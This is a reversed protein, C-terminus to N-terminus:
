KAAGVRFLSSPQVVESQGQQAQLERGQEVEVLWPNERELKDRDIEMDSKQRMYERCKEKTCELTNFVEKQDTFFADVNRSTEDSSAMGTQVSSGLETKMWHAVKYREFYNTVAQKRVEYAQRFLMVGLIPITINWWRRAYKDVANMREKVADIRDDSVLFVNYDAHSINTKVRLASLGNLSVELSQNINESIQNVIRRASQRADVIDEDLRQIDDKLGAFRGRIGDKRQEERRQANEEAAKREAELRAAEEAAKREAELRAAEEAAKREAELRAEEAAKRAAEEAAKRAVEEAAKREAELRAEEAAKKAAEEAAKREAAAKAEEAAKREAGAKAKEEAVRKAEEDEINAPEGSEIHAVPSSRGSTSLPLPFTPTGSSAQNSQTLEVTEEFSGVPTESEEGKKNRTGKRRRGKGAVPTAARSRGKKESRPTVNGESSATDDVSFESDSAEIADLGHYKAYLGGLATVFEDENQGYKSQEDSGVLTLAADINLLLWDNLKKNTKKSNVISLRWMDLTDGDIKKEASRQYVDLALLVGIRYNDAPSLKESLIGKFFDFLELSFVRSTVKSKLSAFLSTVAKVPAPGKSSQEDVIDSYGLTSTVVKSATSSGAGFTYAGALIAACRNLFSSDTVKTKDVFAAELQSLGESAVEGLTKRAEHTTYSEFEKNLAALAERRRAQDQM